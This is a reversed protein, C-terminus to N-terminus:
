IRQHWPGPVVKALSKITPEPDMPEGNLLRSWRQAQRDLAADMRIVLDMLSQVLDAKGTSSSEPPDSAAVADDASKLYLALIHRLALKGSGPIGLVNAMERVKASKSDTLSEWVKATFPM